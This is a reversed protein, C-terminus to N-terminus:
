CDNRRVDARRDVQVAIEQYHALVALRLPLVDLRAAPLGPIVTMDGGDSVTSEKRLLRGRGLHRRLPPRGRGGERAAQFSAEMDSIIPLLRSLSPKIV